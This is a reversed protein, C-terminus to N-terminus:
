LARAPGPDAAGGTRLGPESRMPEPEIVLRDGDHRMPM